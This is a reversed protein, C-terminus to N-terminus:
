HIQLVPHSLSDVCILEVLPKRSFRNKQFNVRTSKSNTFLYFYVIQKSSQNVAQDNQINRTGKVTREITLECNM